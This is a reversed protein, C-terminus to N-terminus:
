VGMLRRRLLDLALRAGALRVTARDGGLLHRTVEIGCPGAVAHFVLGVPKDATAGGPGAIGTVSVAWEGGLRARAGSAMASAVEASVAGHCHLLEGPVGLLEEKIENSYAVVGGRVYRSSGPVSTLLEGVLGGTCSEATVVRDGREVLLTGVVEELSRDNEGYVHDGLRERARAAAVALAEGSDASLVVDVVGPAPLYAARSGPTSGLAQEMMEAVAGERLGVTRLVAVSLASGVRRIQPRVCRLFMDQLERPPGPLLYVTSCGRSVALGPAVGVHNVFWAAGPIMWAQRDVADLATDGFAAARRRVENRAEEHVTLSAGLADAVGERTVDDPTPGLGGSVVVVEADLDLAETVRAAISERRDPVVTARQVKLGALSLERALFQVNRDARHGLLLESGVIIIEARRSGTVRM